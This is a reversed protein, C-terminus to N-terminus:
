TVTELNKTTNVAPPNIHKIVFICIIALVCLGVLTDIAPLYSGSADRVSAIVRTGMGGALSDIMVLIALIKGYSAGAFHQAILLQITTFSGSFGIGAVAAYVFLMVNDGATIQRLILLGAVFTVISIIMTIEKNLFDGLWGFGLKGIVSCAFFLSFVNPLLAREVGVDKVLHISQHQVLAIISFWVCATAFAILYFTPKGLAERLTPGIMPKSKAPEAVAAAPTSREISQPRDMVLFLLAPITMVVAVVSVMTIAGRWGYAEMGHGMILPFVAGGFSSAMLLLGVARGRLRNFWKTLVVMSATLGCLSLSLGLGFYVAVMQWLTNTLALSFLCLLIGISGCLMIIRPSFRDLLVGAPPSAIAGFIYFITAPLTIQAATWGFEDILAPYIIPLTHVVIGNSAAYVLMLGSLVFWRRHRSLASPM